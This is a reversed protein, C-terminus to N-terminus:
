RFAMDNQSDFLKVINPHNLRRLVEEERDNNSKHFLEIRKVAVRTEGWVGEFVVSHIGEGLIKMKDFNSEKSM